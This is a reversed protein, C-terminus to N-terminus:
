ESCLWGEEPTPPFSSLLGACGVGVKYVPSTSHVSVLPFGADLRVLILCLQRGPVFHFRYASRCNSNAALLMSITRKNQLSFHTISLLLVICCFVVICFSISCAMLCWFLVRVGLLLLVDSLLFM